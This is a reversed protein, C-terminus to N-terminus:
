YYAPCPLAGKSEGCLKWKLMISHNGYSRRQISSFGLGYSYAIELNSISIGVSPLVALSSAMDDTLYKRASLGLWLSQRYFVKMNLDIRSYLTELYNFVVSPEFKLESRRSNIKLGAVAIYLRRNKDATQPDTVFSLVPLLNCAAIGGYYFQNYLGAGVSLDPNWASLRAGSIVPDNNYNYFEGEDLTVQDIAATLGLSLYTKGADSLRVHYAYVLDAEMNRYSGNQDRTVMVGLGHYNTARPLTFRGRAFAFQTNPSAKMGLWQHHDSLSVTYCNEWGTFAPNLIEYDAFYQSCVPMDQSRAVAFATILILIFSTRM